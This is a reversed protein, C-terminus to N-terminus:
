KYFGYHIGFVPANSGPHIFDDAAIGKKKAGTPPATSTGAM